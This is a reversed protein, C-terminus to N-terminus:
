TIEEELVILYVGAALQMSGERTVKVATELTLGARQLYAIRAAVALEAQSWHRKRGSGPNPNSLPLYGRTAWVDLQRYTVGEPLTLNPAHAKM